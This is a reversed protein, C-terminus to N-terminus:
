PCASADGVPPLNLRKTWALAEEAPELHVYLRM